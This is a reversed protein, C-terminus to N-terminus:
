TTLDKNPVILGHLLVMLVPDPERYLLGSSGVGAGQSSVTSPPSPMVLDEGSAPDASAKIGSM